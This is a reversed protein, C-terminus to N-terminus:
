SGEESVQGDAARLVAELYACGWVGYRQQTAEVLDDWGGLDFLHRATAQLAATDGPLLLGETTHPFGSRGHGHSTGVLRAVLQPDQSDPVHLGDWCEAVSRQEHRWRSPLGSRRENRRAQEATTGRRSKALVSDDRAGLRAQFRFDQKGDDHHAGASALAQVLESGLGLHEGLLAAREAVAQQHASLTVKPSGPTWVQRIGEDAAARRRDILLVRVLRGDTDQHVILESRTSPESLLDAAARVMGSASPGHSPGDLWDRLAARQEDDSAPEVPPILANALATLDTGERVSGCGEELRLVVGGV